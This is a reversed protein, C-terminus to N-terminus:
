TAGGPRRRRNIWSRQGRDGWSGGRIRSCMGLAAMSLSLVRGRMRLGNEGNRLIKRLFLMLLLLMLSGLRTGM